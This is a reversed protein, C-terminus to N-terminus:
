FIFQFSPKEFANQTIRPKDSQIEFYMLNCTKLNFKQKINRSVALQFLIRNDNNSDNNMTM